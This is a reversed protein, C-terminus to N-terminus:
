KKKKFKEVKGQEDTSTMEDKGVKVKFKQKIPPANLLAPPTIEVEM